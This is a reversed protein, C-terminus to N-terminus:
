SLNVPMTLDSGSELDQEVLELARDNDGRFRMLLARFTSLPVHELGFMTVTSARLRLEITALMDDLHALPLCGEPFVLFHARRFGGNGEAALDLVSRVRGWQEAPEPVAYGQDGRRLHDPIQALLCHPHQGVPLSLNLPTEIIELM